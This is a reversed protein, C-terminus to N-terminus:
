PQGIVIGHSAPQLPSFRARCSSAHAPAPMGSCKRRQKSGAADSKASTHQTRHHVCYTGQAASGHEGRAREGVWGARMRSRGMQGPTAQDGDTAAAREREREEGVVVWARESEREGRAPGGAGDTIQNKRKHRARYLEWDSASGREWKKGRNGDVSHRSWAVLSGVESKLVAPVRANGVARRERWERQWQPSSARGM